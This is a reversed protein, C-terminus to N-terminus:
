LDRHFPLAKFPGAFEPLFTEAIAWSGSFTEKLSVIEDFFELGADYAIYRTPMVGGSCDWQRLVLKDASVNNARQM